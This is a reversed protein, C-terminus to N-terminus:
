TNRNGLPMKKKHDLLDKGISNITIDQKGKTISTENEEDIQNQTITQDIGLSLNRRKKM